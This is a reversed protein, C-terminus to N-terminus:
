LEISVLPIFTLLFKWSLNSFLIFIAPFSNRDFRNCKSDKKGKKKGRFFLSSSVLNGFADFSKEGSPDIWVFSDGSNDGADPGNKLLYAAIM